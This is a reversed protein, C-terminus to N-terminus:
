RTMACTMVIASLSSDSIPSFDSVERGAATVNTWRNDIILFLPITGPTPVAGIVDNNGFRPIGRDFELRKGMTQFVHPQFGCRKIQSKM